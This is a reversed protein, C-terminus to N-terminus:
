EEIMERLFNTEKVEEQEQAQDQDQQQNQAEPDEYAESYEIAVMKYRDSLTGNANLLQESIEILIPLLQLMQSEDKKAEIIRDVDGIHDELDLQVDQSDTDFWMKNYQILIKILNMLTM